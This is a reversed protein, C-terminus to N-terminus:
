TQTSNLYTQLAGSNWLLASFRCDSALRICLVCKRHTLTFYLWFVMALTTCAKGAISKFTVLCYVYPLQLENFFFFYQYDQYYCTGVCPDMLM